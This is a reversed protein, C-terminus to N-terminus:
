NVQPCWGAMQQPIHGVQYTHSPLTTTCMSGHMDIYRKQLCYKPTPNKMEYPQTQYRTSVFRISHVWLFGACRSNWPKIQVGLCSLFVKQRTQKNTKLNISQNTSQDISQHTYSVTQTLTHLILVHPHGRPWFLM